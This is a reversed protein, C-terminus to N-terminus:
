VSELKSRVHRIQMDSLFFLSFPPHLTHRIRPPLLYGVASSHGLYRDPCSAMLSSSRVKGGDARSMGKKSIRQV